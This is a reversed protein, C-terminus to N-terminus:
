RYGVNTFKNKISEICPIPSIFNTINKTRNSNVRLGRIRPLESVIHETNPWRPPSTPSKSTSTNSYMTDGRRQAQLSSHSHLNHMTDMPSILVPRLPLNNKPQNVRRQKCQLLYWNGNTTAPDHVSLGLMCFIRTLITICGGIFIGREPNRHDITIALSGVLNRFVLLSGRIM